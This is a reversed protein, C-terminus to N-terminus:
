AFADLLRADTMQSQYITSIIFNDICLNCWRGGCSFCFIYFKISNSLALHIAYSELPMFAETFYALRRKAPKPENMLRCGHRRSCDTMMIIEIESSPHPSADEISARM